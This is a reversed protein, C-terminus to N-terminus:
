DTFDDYFLGGFYTVTNRGNIYNMGAAEALKDVFIGYGEISGHVRDPFRCPRAPYTCADCIGCGENALMLYEGLHPKLLAELERATRKFSEMGGMMGEYDFSDELDYKGSFVLVNRFRLCKARCEDVTGVAPPCAWTAAYKRCVNAECMKRVEESFDIDPTGIVGYQFVGARDAIGRLDAGM